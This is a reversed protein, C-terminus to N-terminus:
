VLKKRFALIREPYRVERNAGFRYGPVSVRVIDLLEFGIDLILKYHFNSVHQRSDKRQHDKIDLLFVGSPFLVRHVEQWAYLHSSRYEQGWQMAGTNEPHLDRGLYHKYTRRHSKDKAEHHDAMRNSFTPSTVVAAFTMAPFPLETANGIITRHHAKAWEPEIEVGFTEWPLIGELAGLRHIGGVGAM